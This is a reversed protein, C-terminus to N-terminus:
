ERELRAVDHDVTTRVDATEGDVRTLLDSRLSRDSGELRLGRVELEEIVKNQPHEARRLVLAFGWGIRQPRLALDPKVSVREPMFHEVLRVVLTRLQVDSGLARNPMADDTVETM